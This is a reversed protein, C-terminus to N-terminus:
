DDSAAGPERWLGLQKLQAVTDFLNWSGVVKGDELRYECWWAWTAKKGTPELTSGEVSGEHTGSYTGRLFVSREDAIMHDITAVLDPFITLKREIDDRLADHDLEIESGDSTHVVLKPSCFAVQREVDRENFAECMERVVALNREAETM